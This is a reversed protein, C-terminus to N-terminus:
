GVNVNIITGDTDYVVNVRTSIHDTTIDSGKPYVRVTGPAVSRIQEIMGPTNINEGIFDMLRQFTDM